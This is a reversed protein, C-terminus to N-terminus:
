ERRKQRERYEVLTLSCGQLIPVSRKAWGVLVPLQDGCCWDTARREKLWRRLIERRGTRTGTASFRRCRTRAGNDPSQVRPMHTDGSLPEAPMATFWNIASVARGLPHRIRATNQTGWNQEALPRGDKAMEDLVTDLAALKLTRWSEFDPNLLHQPESQSMEWAGYELQRKMPGFSFDQQFRRMYTLLPATSFELFKLRYNRVVRYGVSSAAARGGWNEIQERVDRYDEENELLGLL